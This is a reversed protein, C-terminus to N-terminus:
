CEETVGEGGIESLDIETESNSNGNKIKQKNEVASKILYSVVGGTMPLGVYSFLGDLTVYEPTAIIQYVIIAMGFVAVIFWLAIMAILINKSYERWTKLKKTKNKM